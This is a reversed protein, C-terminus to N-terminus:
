SPEVTLNPSVRDQLMNSIYHLTASTSSPCSGCAGQYKVRVVNDELGLLELGGGDRALGPRVTVDIVQNIVNLKEEKTMKDFDEPNVQVISTDEGDGKVAVIDKSEMLIENTRFFIFDWIGGETKTIAIFDDMFFLSQVGHVDFIKTAVPNDWAEEKKNYHRGNGTAVKQDVRVKFALPNPTPEVQLIKAM